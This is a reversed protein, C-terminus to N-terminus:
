PRGDSSFGGRREIEAEIATVRERWVRRRKAWRFITSRIADSQQLQAYALRERLQTDSLTRLTGNWHEM